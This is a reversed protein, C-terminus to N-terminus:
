NSLFKVYILKILPLPTPALPLAPLTRIGPCVQAELNVVATLRNKSPMPKKRIVHLLVICVGVEKKRNGIMMTYNM